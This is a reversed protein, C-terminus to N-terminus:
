FLMKIKYYFLFMNRYLNFNLNIIKFFVKSKNEIHKNGYEFAIKLEKILSDVTNRNDKFSNSIIIENIITFISNIYKYNASEILQPYEKKVFNLIEKNADILDLKKENFEGKSISDQRQL